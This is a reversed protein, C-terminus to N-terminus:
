FCSGMPPGHLLKEHLTGVSSTGRLLVAAFMVFVMIMVVCMIAGAALIMIGVVCTIARAALIM